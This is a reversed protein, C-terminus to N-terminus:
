ADDSWVAARYRACQHTQLRCGRTHCANCTRVCLPPKLEGVDRSANVVDSGGLVSQQGTLVPLFTSCSREPLDIQRETSDAASWSLGEPSGRPSRGSPPPSM